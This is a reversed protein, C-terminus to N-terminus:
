NLANLAAELHALVTLVAWLYVIFIRSIIYM